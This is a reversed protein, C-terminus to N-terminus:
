SNRSLHYLAHARGLLTSVVLYAPLKGEEGEEPLEERLDAFVGTIADTAERRAEEALGLAPHNVPALMEAQTYAGPYAQDIFDALKEVGNITETKDTM